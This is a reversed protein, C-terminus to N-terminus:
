LKIRTGLFSRVFFSVIYHQLAGMRSIFRVTRQFYWESYDPVTADGVILEAQFIHDLRADWIAVFPQHKQTWSILQNGKLTIKHLDASYQPDAPISQLMGFQRAVRDPLHTEVIFVCIIPGRYRWIRRGAVCYEPLGDLIDTSYPEWIFHASAIGDLITRTSSLTRGAKEM